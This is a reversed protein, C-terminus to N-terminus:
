HTEMGFHADNTKMKNVNRYVICIIMKENIDIKSTVELYHTFKTSYQFDVM